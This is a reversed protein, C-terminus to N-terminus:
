ELKITKYKYHKKNYSCSDTDLFFSAVMLGCLSGRPVSIEFPSKHIQIDKYIQVNTDLKKTLWGHAGHDSISMQVM